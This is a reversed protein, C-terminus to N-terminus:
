ESPVIAATATANAFKVPTSVIANPPDIDSRATTNSFGNVILSEREVTVRQTQRALLQERDHHNQKEREDVRAPQLGSLDNL